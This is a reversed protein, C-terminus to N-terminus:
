EKDLHQGVLVIDYHINKGARIGRTGDSFLKVAAPECHLHQFLIESGTPKAKFGLRGNRGEPTQRVLRDVAFDQLLLCARHGNREWTLQEDLREWSFTNCKATVSKLETPAGNSRVVLHPFHARYSEFRHGGSGYDPARIRQALPGPFVAVAAEPSPYELM